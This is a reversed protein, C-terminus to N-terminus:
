GLSWGCIQKFRDPKEIINEYQGKERNWKYWIETRPVTYIGPHVEEIVAYHYYGEECIDLENNIVVEEAEKFTEFYGIARNGAALAGRLTTVTYIPM